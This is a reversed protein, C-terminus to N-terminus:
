LWALRRRNQAEIIKRQVAEALADVSMGNSGYVNITIGEGPTSGNATATDARRLSANLMVDQQVTAKSLDSLANTVVGSNAEIGAAIGAPIWRGIQDAFVKSPSGIGM